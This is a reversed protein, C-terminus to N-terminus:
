SLRAGKRSNCPRCLTQLNSEDDSGGKSQPIVHDITLNGRVGCALCEFGDRKYVSYRVELPLEATSSPQPALPRRSVLGRGTLAADFEQKLWGGAGDGWNWLGSQDVEVALQELLVRVRAVAAREALIEQETPM